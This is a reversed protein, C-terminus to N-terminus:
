TKHKLLKFPLYTLYFYPILILDMIIIYYPWPGLLDLLSANHPKHNLFLYNSGLFYNLGMVLVLYIQIFIFTSFVGRFTPRKKAVIIEFFILTLLGMHVTWFKWYEYHPISLKLGPTIVSQITGVIILYYIINFLLNNRNWAYIPLLLAIFNCFILPLDTEIHFRDLSVEIIAWIIIMLSLLICLGNFIKKQTRENKNKAYLITIVGAIGFAVISILHQM